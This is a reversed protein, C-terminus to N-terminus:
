QLQVWNVVPSFNTGLTGTFTLNPKVKAIGKNAITISGAGDITQAVGTALPTQGSVTCTNGGSQTLNKITLPTATDWSADPLILNVNGGTADCEMYIDYDQVPYNTTGSIGKFATTVETWFDSSLFTANGTYSGAAGTIADQTFINSGVIEPRFITGSAIQGATGNFTGIYSIILENAAATTIAASTPAASNTLAHFVSTADVPSAHAVYAYERAVISSAACSGSFTATITNAGAAINPAVLLNYDVNVGNNLAPTVATYVNPGSDAISSFALSLQV